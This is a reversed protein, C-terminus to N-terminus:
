ISAVGEPFSVRLTLIEGFNCLKCGIGIGIAYNTYKYIINEKYYFWSGFIQKNEKRFYFCVLNICKYNNNFDNVIWSNAFKFTSLYTVYAIICTLIYALILNNM